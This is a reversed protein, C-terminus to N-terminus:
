SRLLSAALVGSMLQNGMIKPDSCSRLLSQVMQTAVEETLIIDQNNQDAVLSRALGFIAFKLM